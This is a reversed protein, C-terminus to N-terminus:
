KAVGEILKIRVRTMKAEEIYESDVVTASANSLTNDDNLINVTVLEGTKFEVKGIVMTTAEGYNAQIRTIMVQKLEAVKNAFDVVTIWESRKTNEKHLLEKIAAFDQGRLDFYKPDLFRTRFKKVKAVRVTGKVPKEKGFESKINITAGQRFCNKEGFSYWSGLEGKLVKEQFAENVVLDFWPADCKSLDTGDAKTEDYGDTAIKEARRQMLVKEDPASGKVYRTDVIVVIGEHKPNLRIKSKYDDFGQNESFFSGKLHTPKMNALKVLTIKNVIVLGLNKDNFYSMAVPKGIEGCFKYGANVITTQEGVVVRERESRDAVRIDSWVQSGCNPLRTGPKNFEVADGAELRERVSNVKQDSPKCATLAVAASLVSLQILKLNGGESIDGNM